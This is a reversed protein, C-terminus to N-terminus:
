GSPAHEATRQAPGSIGSGSGARHRSQARTTLGGMVADTPKSVLYITIIEVWTVQYGAAPPPAKM